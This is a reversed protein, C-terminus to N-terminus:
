TPTRTNPVHRGNQMNKLAVNKYYGQSMREKKKKLFFYFIMFSVPQVEEAAPRCAASLHHM